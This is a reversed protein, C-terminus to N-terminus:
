DIFCNFRGQLNSSLNEIKAFLENAELREDEVYKKRLASELMSIVVDSAPQADANVPWPHSALCNECRRLVDELMLGDSLRLTSDVALSLRLAAVFEPPTNPRLSLISRHGKKHGVAIKQQFNSENYASVDKSLDFPFSGTVLEFFCIALSFVDSAPGEYGELGEPSEYPISGASPLFGLSENVHEALGFDGVLLEDGSQNHRILLNAPRIDRHVIVPDMGHAHALGAAAQRMLSICQDIPYTGGHEDILHELDAGKVFEMTVYLPSEDSDHIHNAEFIRVVNPHGIKSLVFAEQLGSDRDNPNDARDLVKMAQMGMYRHRVLYVDGFAGSGLHEEVTYTQRIVDGRRLEVM